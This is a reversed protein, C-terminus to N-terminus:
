INIQLMISVVVLQLIQGHCKAFDSVWEIAYAEMVIISLCDNTSHFEAYSQGMWCATVRRLQTLRNIQLMVSVVELHLIQGHCKTFDFVMEVTFLELPISFPYDNTSDLKANSQSM